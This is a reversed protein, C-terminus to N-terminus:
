HNLLSLCNNLAVRTGESNGLCRYLQEPTIKKHTLESIKDDLNMKSIQMKTGIMEPFVKKNLLGSPLALYPTKLLWKGIQYTLFDLVYFVVTPINALALELTITGPSSIALDTHSLAMEKDSIVQFSKENQPIIKLLNKTEEILARPVLM